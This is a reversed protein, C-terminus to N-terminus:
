VIKEFLREYAEDVIESALEVNGADIYDCLAEIESPAMSVLEWGMPINEDVMGDRWIISM